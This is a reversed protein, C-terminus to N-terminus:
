TRNGAPWGRVCRMSTTSDTTSAPSAASRARPTISFASSSMRPSASGPWARPRPAGSIMCRGIMCVRWRMSAANGRRIATTRYTRSAVPPSYWSWTRNARSQRSCRLPPRRCPSWLQQGNKTRAGPLAWTKAAFDIESWRMGVVEGRRQATMALLQAITGYPYGERESAQWVTVLEHDSLVRDRSTPRNPLKLGACPSVEIEGREVCWNFFKRVVAFAHNAASPTGREMLTEIVDIVDARTIDAIMRHKWDSLFVTRLLRETVTATSIRNRRKCHTEVFSDLADPFLQTRRDAGQPDEGKGLSGIANHADARAEALSTYPYRGLTMRRSRGKSRYTLYFTKVGAATVRVGFGPIKGDPYQAQGTAPASPKLRRRLVPFLDEEEDIVHLAMDVELFIVVASALRLDFTEAEALEDTAQCQQRHRLQEVHIFDLPQSLLKQESKGFPAAADRRRRAQAM